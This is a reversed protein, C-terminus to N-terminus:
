QDSALLADIRAGVSDVHDRIRGYQREEILWRAETIMAEAPSRRGQEAHVLAFNALARAEEDILSSAAALALAEAAASAREPLAESGEGLLPEALMHLAALEEAPLGASAMRNRAELLKARAIAPQGAAALARAHELLLERWASHPQMDPPDMGLAQQARDIEDLARGPQGQTTDLRALELHGRCVRSPGEHQQSWALNQELLARTEHPRDLGLLLSAAASRLDRAWDYQREAIATQEASRALSLGLERLEDADTPAPVVYILDHTILDLLALALRAVSVPHGTSLASRYADFAVWLETTGIPSAGAAILTRARLVRLALRRRDSLDPTALMADVVTYADTSLGLSLFGDVIPEADDTALTASYCEATWAHARCAHGLADFPRLLVLNIAHLVREVRMVPLWRWPATSDIELKRALSHVEDVRGLDAAQQALRANMFARVNPSSQTMSQLRERAERHHGRMSLARFAMLAAHDISWDENADAVLRLVDWVRGVEIAQLARMRLLRDHELQWAHQDAVTSWVKQAEALLEIVQHHHELDSQVRVAEFLWRIRRPDDKGFRALERTSNELLQRASEPPALGKPLKAHFDEASVVWEVGARYAWLDPAQVPFMEIAELGGIWVLLGSSLEAFRERGLNLTALFSESDGDAWSVCPTAGMHALALIQEWPDGELELQGRAVVIGEDRLAAEFARRRRDDRGLVFVLGGDRLRGAVRRAIRLQARALRASREAARTTM